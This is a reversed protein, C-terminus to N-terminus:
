IWRSILNNGNLVDEALIIEVEIDYNSISNLFFSGDAISYIITRKGSNSLGAKIIQVNKYNNLVSVCNKYNNSVPESAFM